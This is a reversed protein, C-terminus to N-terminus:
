GASLQRRVGSLWQQLVPERYLRIIRQLEDNPTSRHVYLLFEIVDQQLGAQWDAAPQWGDLVAELQPYVQQRTVTMLASFQMAQDLQRILTLRAAAPPSARLRTIYSHYSDSNQEAIAKLEKDRVSQLQSNELLAELQDRQKENLQGLQESLRQQLAVPAWRGSLRDVVDYQKGLPAATSNLVQQAINRAQESLGTLGSIRIINDSQLQQSDAEASFAPASQEAAVLATLPMLTLTLAVLSSRIM